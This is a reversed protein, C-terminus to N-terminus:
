KKIKIRTNHRIWASHGWLVNKERWASQGWLANENVEGHVRDGFHMKM